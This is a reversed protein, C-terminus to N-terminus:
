SRRARVPQENPQFANLYIGVNEAKALTRIARDRVAFRSDDLFWLLHRATMKDWQLALGWRAKVQPAGQRRVRYIGGAVKPQGGSRFAECCNSWTGTNIILLSGDADEIVDSPRFDKNDSVIFDEMRSRYSAGDREVVLRVIKHMNFLAAFLN